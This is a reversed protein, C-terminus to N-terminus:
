VEAIVMVKTWITGCAIPKRTVGIRRPRRAESAAFDKHRTASRWARQAENAERHM